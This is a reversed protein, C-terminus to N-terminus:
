FSDIPLKNSNIRAICCCFLSYKNFLFDSQFFSIGENFLQLLSVCIITCTRNIRKLSHHTFTTLLLSSNIKSFYFRTM